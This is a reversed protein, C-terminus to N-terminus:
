SKARVTIGARSAAQTLLGHKAQAALGAPHALTVFARTRNGYKMGRSESADSTQVPLRVDGPVGEVMVVEVNRAVDEAADDVLRRFPASTAIEGIGKWNMKVVNRAM